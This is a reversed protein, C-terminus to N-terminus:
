NKRDVRINVTKEVYGQDWNDSPEKFESEPIFILTDKTLFLGNETSDIDKVRLEWTRDWPANSFQLSYRGSSDTQTSDIIGSAEMTDRISVMLGKVPLNLDSSLVTGSVKCDAHPMGYEPAPGYMCGGFNCLIGLAASIPLCLVKLFQITFKRFYKRASM